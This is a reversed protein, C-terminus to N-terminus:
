VGTVINVVGPGVKISRARIKMVDVAKRGVDILPTDLDVWLTFQPTGNCLVKVQKQKNDM